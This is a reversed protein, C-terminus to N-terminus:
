NLAVAMCGAGHERVSTQECRRVGDTPAGVLRGERWAALAGRARQRSPLRLAANYNQYADHGRQADGEFALEREDGSASSADAARDGLAEGLAASADDDRAPGLCLDLLDGGRRAAEGEAHVHGVPGGDRGPEVIEAGALEVDVHEDIVRAGGVAGKSRVVSSTQSRNSETFTVLAKRSQRARIGGIILRPKPRTM